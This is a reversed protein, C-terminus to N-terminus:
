RSEAMRIIEAAAAPYEMGDIDLAAHATHRYIQERASLLESIRARLAEPTKVQGLMPRDGPWHWLNYVLTDIGAQLYICFTRAHLEEAASPTTVLGGGPSLVFDEGGHTDLVETLASAELERFRREGDSSFIERISRGEKEEMWRDLDIVKCGLQKGLEKGICSKGCGMFGILSITM